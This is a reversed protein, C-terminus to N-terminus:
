RRLDIRGLDERGYIDHFIRRPPVRLRFRRREAPRDMVAYRGNAPVVFIAGIRHRAAGWLAQIGYVASGDGVIAVVPRDPVALRLGVGGGGPRVHRLSCHM